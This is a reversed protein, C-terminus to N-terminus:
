KDRKVENVPLACQPTSGPLRYRNNAVWRYVWDQLHRIGPLPYLITFQRLWWCYRLSQNIAAAGGTLRGNGDVFWVQTLGDEATLGLTAMIEPIAQWPQLNIRGNTWSEM